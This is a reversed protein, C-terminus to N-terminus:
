GHLERYANRAGPHMPINMTGVLTHPDLFQTGRVQPPVLATAREVLTRTIAFAVDEPLTEQCLLLNAVGLTAIGPQGYGGAPLRVLQYATGYRERLAPLMEAVPLVRIGVRQDLDALVPTPVGGVWLLADVQGHELAAVADGLSQFAQVVDVGACMLLRQSITATGSGNAGMSVRRGSLDAIRGVPSTTLVVLQLYDEYVRGLCRIAMPSIFPDRGTLAALAIDAQSIALDARGSNIMLLNEVSGATRISTSHLNPNLSTIERALLHGFELYLGGVQGSAVRIAREPGTYREGGCANILATTCAAVGARIVTRRTVTM